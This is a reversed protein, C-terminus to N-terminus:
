SLLKAGVIPPRKAKQDKERQPSLSRGRQNHNMLVDRGTRFRRSTRGGWLWMGIRRDAKRESSQSPAGKRFRSGFDQEPVVRTGQEPGLDVAASLLTREVRLPPRYLPSTLVAVVDDTELPADVCPRDYVKHCLNKSQRIVHAPNRTTRSMPGVSRKETENSSPAGGSRSVRGM